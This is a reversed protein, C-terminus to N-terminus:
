RPELEELLDLGLAEAHERHQHGAKARDLRRDLRHLLAGVVVEQLRELDLLDDVDDLARQVPLAELGLVDAQALRERDVLDALRDRQRM